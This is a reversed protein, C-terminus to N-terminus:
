EEENNQIEDFLNDWEEDTLKNPDTGLQANRIRSRERELLDRNAKTQEIIYEKKTKDSNRLEEEEIIKKAVFDYNQNARNRHLESDIRRHEQQRWTLVVKKLYEDPGILYEQVVIEKPLLVLPRGDVQPIRETRENWEQSDIDWYSFTFELDRPMNHQDAQEITFDVLESKIVSAIFDSLHDPGFNPIFLMLDEANEILRDDYLGQEEIYDYVQALSDESNGTGGPLGQSYGLFIENSEGSNIFLEKAEIQNGNRYLEFVTHHFRDVKEAWLQFRREARMRTPDIFLKNDTTTLLNVFEFDAQSRGQLNFYESIRM